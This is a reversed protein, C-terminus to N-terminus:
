ASQTLYELPQMPRTQQTAPRITMERKYPRIGRPRRNVKEIVPNRTCTKCHVATKKLTRIKSQYIARARALHGPTSTDHCADVNEM